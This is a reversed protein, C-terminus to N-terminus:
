VPSPRLDIQLNEVHRELDEHGLTELLYAILDDQRPQGFVMRYVVLSRRLNEMQSRDRSLPLAPVHREVSAGGEPAFLWYPVLGQGGEGAEQEALDFARQWPDTTGDMAALAQRGYVDAVNKRIAHGKYRHVRGERQELDVPNSPLNWHVVAHCYPHFDLGEQGVSTTALVFPWFPSNFAGRVHDERQGSSEDDKKDSGFRMAFHARLSRKQVEVQGGESRLEDFELRSTRLSLASGIAGAVGAVTEDPPTGFLGLSDRLVHAYEDLMAGIGGAASYRIVMRWYPLETSGKSVEQSRVLALSEPRNFLSRLGWAVRAAGDRLSLQDMSSVQGSVRALARLAAVGPAALAMESIVEELDAPPRGLRIGGDLLHLAEDLHDQFRSDSEAADEDLARTSGGMWVAALEAREFWAESIERHSQQDLLMPAAWYWTEDEPGQAEAQDLLPALASRVAGRVSARIEALSPLDQESDLPQGRQPDGLEALSFSPYLIGLVPMGSLRGDTRAFRLLASRRKRAEPTNEPSTEFGSFARREAEYSLLMALAQPVVTWASFILRKTLGAEAASAHESCLEYDPLAPPIWLLRWAQMRDLDAQLSRLRANGPDLKQYAELTEWPLLLEASESLIEALQPGNTPSGAHDLFETKLKYQNMFNLVFPVSKWYEVVSPQGVERAVHQLQIFQRVDLDDLVVHSADVEKLMDARKAGNNLDAFRETRSMVKRLSGEIAARHKEIGSEEGDGLRYLESRFSKLRDQLKATEAPSNQLFDVTRVFDAYHDDEEQEHQLTYMKYPTASLLLTRVQSVKDSYVFLRRALRGADSEDKLLHKFRQFEDLIILDPELAEFCVGALLARLEGIFQARLLRDEKPRQTARKHSFRKCLNKYRDELGPQGAVAQANKENMASTFASQIDADITAPDFDNVRDRWSRTKAINGQFVNLPAAGTIGWAARVMWYLLVREERQGLNSKLDFSTGPTFSVFNLPSKKLDKLIKPLLTIRSAVQFGSERSLNLRNINQRAIEANSCIYLVDIRQIGEQRLHEVAKAVVGRAVLTKGLGVEDAVLFRRSSNPAKYLRDFAYDVTDRQFGKLQSLVEETDPWAFSRKM